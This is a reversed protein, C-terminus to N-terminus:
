RTFGCNANNKYVHVEKSSTSCGANDAAGCMQANHLSEVIFSPTHAHMVQLISRGQSRLAHQECSAHGEDASKIQFQERGTISLQISSAPRLILAEGFGSTASPLLLRRSTEGKLTDRSDKRSSGSVTSSQQAHCPSPGEVGQGVKGGTGDM